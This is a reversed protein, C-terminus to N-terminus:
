CGDYKQCSAVTLLEDGTDSVEIVPECWAVTTDKQVAQPKATPNLLRLPIEKGGMDVLTKAALVRLPTLLSGFLKFYFRTATKWVLYNCESNYVITDAKFDRTQM